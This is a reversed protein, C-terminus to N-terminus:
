LAPQIDFELVIEWLPHAEDGLWELHGLNYAAQEALLTFSEQPHRSGQVILKLERRIKHKMSKM